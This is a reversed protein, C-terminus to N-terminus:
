RLAEQPPRERLAGYALVYPPVIRLAPANTVLRVPAPLSKYFDVEGRLAPAVANHHLVRQLQQILVTTPWRRRQIAAVHKRRLRGERLPTALHRAAAVGDQVALNIGIGGVPSMAHAADGICLLGPVHWKRLRDLKVSLLKVDDWDRVLDRGDDLCPLFRRLRENFEAVPRSRREADTGKGIIAAAQYYDGRDILAQFTRDALGFRSQVTPPIM